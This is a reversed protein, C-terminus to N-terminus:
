GADRRGELEIQEFRDVVTRAQAVRQNSTSEKHGNTRQAALRLQDYRDRLKPMSLVNSRWFEDNQCWNICGIIQEVTRHDKDLMLRASDRWRDTVTPRKSGNAEIRDALQRCVHEVDLREPVAVAKMPESSSTIQGLDSHDSELHRM